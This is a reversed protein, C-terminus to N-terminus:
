CPDSGRNQLLPAVQRLAELGGDRYLAGLAACALIWKEQQVDKEAPPCRRFIGIIHESLGWRDCLAAVDAAGPSREDATPTHEASGTRGKGLGPLVKLRMTVDGILALSNADDPITYLTFLDQIPVPLKEEPFETLISMYLRKVSSDTLVRLILNPDRITIGVDAEIRPIVNRNV